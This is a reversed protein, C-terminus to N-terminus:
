CNTLHNQDIFEVCTSDIKYLQNEILIIFYPIAGAKARTRKGELIMGLSGVKVKACYETNCPSGAKFVIITKEHMQPNHGPYLGSLYRRWPVLKRALLNKGEVVKVLRGPITGKPKRM